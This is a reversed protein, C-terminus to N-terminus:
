IMIEYLRFKGTKGKFPVEIFLKTEIDTHKLKEKLLESILIQGGNARSCIRATINIIDGAIYNGNILAEGANMGIRLLVEIDKRKENYKIIEKQIEIACNACKIAEDFLAIFADGSNIFHCEKGYGKFKSIQIDELNKLAKLANKKGLRIVLGNFNQVDTLMVVKFSRYESFILQDLRERQKM